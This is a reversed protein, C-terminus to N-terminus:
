TLQSTKAIDVCHSLCSLRSAHTLFVSHQNMKLMSQSLRGAAPSSGHQAAQDWSSFSIESNSHKHGSEFIGNLSLLIVPYHDLCNQKICLIFRQNFIEISHIKYYIKCKSLTNKKKLLLHRFILPAVLFFTEVLTGM